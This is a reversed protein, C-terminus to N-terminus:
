GGLKSDHHCKSRKKTMDKKMRLFNKMIQFIVTTSFSCNSRDIDLNFNSGHPHSHDFDFEFPLENIRTQSLFCIYHCNKISYHNKYSVFNMPRYPYCYQLIIWKTSLTLLLNAPHYLLRYSPLCSIVPHYLLHKGM